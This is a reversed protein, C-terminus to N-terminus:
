FKIFNKLVSEQFIQGIGIKKMNESIKNQIGVRELMNELDGLKLHLEQSGFDVVSNKNKLYGLKKLELLSQVIATSLGM